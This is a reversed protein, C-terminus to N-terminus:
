WLCFFRQSKCLQVLLIKRDRTEGGESLISGLKGVADITYWEVLIRNTEGRENKKPAASVGFICCIATVCDMEPVPARLIPPAKM